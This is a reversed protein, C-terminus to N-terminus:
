WPIQRSSQPSGRSVEQSLKYGLQSEFRVGGSYSYTNSSRCSARHHHHYHYYYRLRYIKMMTGCSRHNQITNYKLPPGQVAVMLPINHMARLKLGEVITCKSHLTPNQRCPRWSLWRTRYFLPEPSPLKPLSHGRVQIPHTHNIWIKRPM